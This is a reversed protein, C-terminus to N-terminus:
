PKQIIGTESRTIVDGHSLAEVEWQITSGTAWGASLEGSPLSLMTDTVVTSVLENFSSNYVVIRYSEAGPVRHWSLLIEGSVSLDAPLLSFETATGNEGRLVIDQDPTSRWPIQTAAIILVAAAGALLMPRSRVISTFRPWLSDKKASPAEGGRRVSEDLFRRLHPQVAAAEKDDNIKGSLFLSYQRLLSRCRPCNEAEIRLSDDPSGGLIEEIQEPLICRHSM